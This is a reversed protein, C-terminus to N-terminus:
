SSWVLKIFHYSTTMNPMHTGTHTHTDAGMCRVILAHLLVPPTAVGPTTDVVCNTCAVPGRRRHTHAAFLSVCGLMCVCVNIHVSAARQKDTARANHTQNFVELVGARGEM